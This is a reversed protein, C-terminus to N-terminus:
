DDAEVKTTTAHIRGDSVRIAVPVGIAVGAVSGVVASFRGYDYADRM